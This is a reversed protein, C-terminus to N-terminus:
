YAGCRLARRSETRGSLDPSADPQLHLSLSLVDHVQPNGNSQIAADIKCRSACTWRSMTSCIATSRSRWAEFDISRSQGLLTVLTVYKAGILPAIAITSVKDKAPTSASCRRHNLHNQVVAQAFLDADLAVLVVRHPVQLLQHRRLHASPRLLDADLLPVGDVLVVDRELVVLNM